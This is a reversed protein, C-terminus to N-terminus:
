LKKGWSARCISCSDEHNINATPTSSIRLDSTTFKPFSATIQVMAMKLKPSVDTEFYVSKRSNGANRISCLCIINKPSLLVVVLTNKVFSKSLVITSRCEMRLIRSGDSCFVMASNCRNTQITYCFTVTLSIYTLWLIYTIWKKPVM